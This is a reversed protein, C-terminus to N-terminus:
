CAFAAFYNVGSRPARYVFVHRRFGLTSKSQLDPMHQKDGVFDHSMGVFPLQELDLFSM